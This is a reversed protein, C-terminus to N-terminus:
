IVRKYGEFVEGIEKEGSTNLIKDHKDLIEKMEEKIENMEYFDIIKISKGKIKKENERIWKEINSNAHKIFETNGNIVVIVEEATSIKNLRESIDSYKIIKSPEWYINKIKNTIKEEVNVKKMIELVNKEIDSELITTFNSGESIKEKLYPMIMMALHWDSVYFSCIREM